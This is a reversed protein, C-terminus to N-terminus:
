YHENIIGAPEAYKDWLAHVPVACGPVAHDDQYKVSGRLKLM